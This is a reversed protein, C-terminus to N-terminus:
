EKRVFVTKNNQWQFLKLIVVRTKWCGLNMMIALVVIKSLYSAQQNKVDLFGIQSNEVAIVSIQNSLGIWSRRYTM